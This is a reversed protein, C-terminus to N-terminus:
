LTPIGFPDGRRTPDTPKPSAEDGFGILFGGDTVVDDDIEDLAAQLNEELTVDAEECGDSKEPRAIAYDIDLNKLLRSLHRKSYTIDFGEELLQRIQTTTLPHHDELLEALREREAPMLKPPRGGGFDPELGSLGNENWAEIWRSGTPQTVGVRRAAESVSDDEYLNRIFCLRRVLHADSAKQAEDIATAVEEERLHRQVEKSPGPM